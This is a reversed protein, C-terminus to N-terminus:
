EKGIALDRAIEKNSRDPISEPNDENKPLTKM